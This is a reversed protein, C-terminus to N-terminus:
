LWGRHLAINVADIRNKADLCQFINYIHRKVTAESIGLDRALEKNTRGCSLKYLIEQQRETLGNTSTSSHKDKTPLYIDGQMILSLADNMEQFSVTKPIFGKAGLELALTIDNVNQSATLICIYVQPHLKHFQQLEDPWSQESPMSLDLLACDYREAQSLEHVSTWSDAHDVRYAQNINVLASAICDRFLTHDDALLINM